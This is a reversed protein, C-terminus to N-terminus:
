RLHPLADAFLALLTKMVGAAAREWAGPNGDTVSGDGDVTDTVGRLIVVRVRNRSAVWAISGSEWDGVTARYKDRLKALDGPHLDRDGSVIPGVIVRDRLHAPWRAADLKVRFDDIAEDADSMREYIDYIITEDVLVIDNPKREGGFGGCTGLNVILEPHFRDIAWQTAGAASSKTYGGHFFVVDEDGVRHVLWAGYPGDHSALGPPLLPALAKWEALASIEVVVRAKVEPQPAKPPQPAGCAAALALLLALRM